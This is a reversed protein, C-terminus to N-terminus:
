LATVKELNEYVNCNDGVMVSGSVCDGGGSDLNRSESKKRRPPNGPADDYEHFDGGSSYRGETYDEHHHTPKRQTNTSKNLRITHGQNEPDASRRPSECRFGIYASLSQYPVM